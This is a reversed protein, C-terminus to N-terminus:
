GFAQVITERAEPEPSMEESSSSGTVNQLNM